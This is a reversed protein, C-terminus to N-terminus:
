HEVQSCGPKHTKWHLVQCTRCCYLAKKCKTCRKLTSDISAGGKCNWCYEKKEQCSRFVRKTFRGPKSDKSGRLKYIDANDRSVQEDIDEEKTKHFYIIKGPVQSFFQDTDNFIYPKMTGLFQGLTIDIVIGSKRCKLVNHSCHPPIGMKAEVIETISSLLPYRLVLAHTKNPSFGLSFIELDDMRIRTRTCTTTLSRLETLGINKMYPVMFRVFTATITSCSYRLRSRAWWAFATGPKMKHGSATASSVFDSFNQPCGAQFHCLPKLCISEYGESTTQPGSEVKGAPVITTQMYEAIITDLLFEFTTDIHVQKPTNKAKKGM